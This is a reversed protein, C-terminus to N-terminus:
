PSESDGGETRRSQRRLEKDPQPLPESAWGVSYHFALWVTPQGPDTWEVRHRRRAPIVLHDGPRLVVDEAEDEFRLRASGRLLAVWETTAQELWEGLPTVHGLSVIRELRVGHTEVLVEVYEAPLEAPIAAFLNAVASGASGDSSDGHRELGALPTLRDGCEVDAVAFRPVILACPM